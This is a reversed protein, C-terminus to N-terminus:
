PKIFTHSLVARRNVCQDKIVTFQLEDGTLRFTYKGSKPCKAGPGITIKHGSVSYSNHAAIVHGDVSVKVFTPKFNLTYTGRQHGSAITTRYKGSLVGSAVAAPTLALAGIVSAAILFRKM